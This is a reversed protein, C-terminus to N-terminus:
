APKKPFTWGKEERLIKVLNKTFIAAQEPSLHGWEPCVFHAIAPYDKYYIGPCGTIALL